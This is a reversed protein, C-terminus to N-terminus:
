SPIPGASEQLYAHSIASQPRTFFDKAHGSEAIYGGKQPYSWFLSVHDALRRAQALNHTVIMIACEHKLRSILQEIAESAIRDLASCPEDMLLLRPKLVLARAICLRQKQGGSLRLASDHLRHGVEDLLRVKALSELITEHRQQKTLTGLDLLALEVNRYISVPFPNPQQFVMGITRRLQRLDQDANWISQGQWLIDGSRMVDAEQDVLRNICRLLSSKGSGSPGIIAHISQEKCTLNVDQFITQRNLTLSFNRISLLNAM